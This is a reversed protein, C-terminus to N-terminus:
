MGSELMLMEAVVREKIYKGQELDTDYDSDSGKPIMGKVVKKKQHKKLVKNEQLRPTKEKAPVHNSPTRQFHSKGQPTFISRRKELDSKKLQSLGTRENQM